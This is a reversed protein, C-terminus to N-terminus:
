GSAPRAPSKGPKPPAEPAASGAPARSTHKCDLEFEYPQAHSRELHSVQSPEACSFNGTRELASSFDHLSAQSSSRGYIVVLNGGIKFSYFEVAAAGAGVRGLDDMVELPTTRNRQLYTILDVRGTYNDKLKAFQDAEEKIAALRAARAAEKAKEQELLPVQAKYFEHHWGVLIAPIALAVVLAAQAFLRWLPHPTAPKPSSETSNMPANTASEPSRLGSDAPQRVAGARTLNEM